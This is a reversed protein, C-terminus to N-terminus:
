AQVERRKMSAFSRVYACAEARSAFRQQVCTSASVSRLQTAFDEYSLNESIPKHGNMALWANAILRASLNNLRM